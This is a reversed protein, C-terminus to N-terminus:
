KFLFEGKELHHHSQCIVYSYFLLHRNSDFVEVTVKNICGSHKFYIVLKQKRLIEASMRDGSYTWLREIEKSYNHM